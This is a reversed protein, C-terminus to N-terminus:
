GHSELRNSVDTEEEVEHYVLQEGCHGCNTCGHYGNAV